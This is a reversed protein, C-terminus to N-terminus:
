LTNRGHMRTGGTMCGSRTASIAAPSSPLQVPSTREARFQVQNHADYDIEDLVKADQVKPAEAPSPRRLAPWRRSSRTFPTAEAKATQALVLKPLLFFAGAGLASRLSPGQRNTEITM